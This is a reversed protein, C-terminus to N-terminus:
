PRVPDGNLARARAYASDAGPAGTARLWNGLLLWGTRNEPEEALLGRLMAIARPRDGKLFYVSAQFLEPQQSASLLSAKRFDDFAADARPPQEALLKIGSVQLRENRLSVALWGACALALAVLAARIVVAGTGPSEDQVPGDYPDPVRPSEM